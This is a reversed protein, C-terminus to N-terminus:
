KIGEIKEKLILELDPRCVVLPPINNMSLAINLKEGNRSLIQGGSEKVILYAAAIDVVRMKNKLNIYGDISGRSFLCFSLATSGMIRIRYIMEFISSYKRFQKSAKQLNIDVEFILKDISSHDLKPIKKNNFFAGKDKEAWFIDKTTLNLIVAKEVNDITSGKAYAISVCFFPIDRISNNSGDIPDIILKEETEKVIKEDGIILEGIEESILMINIKNKKLEDIIINESIIDIHMSNDGGVGKKIIKAAEKTGIIPSISDYVLLSLKKLFDIDIESLNM